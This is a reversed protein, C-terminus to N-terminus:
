KKITEYKYMQKNRALPMIQLVTTLIYYGISSTGPHLKERHLGGKGVHHDGGSGETPIFTLEIERERESAIRISVWLM